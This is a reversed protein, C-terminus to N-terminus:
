TQEVNIKLFNCKYIRCIENFEARKYISKISFNALNEITKCSIRCNEYFRASM